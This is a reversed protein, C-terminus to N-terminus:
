EYQILIRCFATIQISFASHQTNFFNCRHRRPRNVSASTGSPVTEMSVTHCLDRCSFIVPLDICFLSPTTVPAPRIGSSVPYAM